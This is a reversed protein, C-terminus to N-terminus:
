EIGLFKLAKRSDVPRPKQHMFLPMLRREEEIDYDSEEEYLDLNSVSLGDDTVSRKHFARQSPRVRLSRRATQMSEPLSPTPSPPGNTPVPSSAFFTSLGVIGTPFRIPHRTQRSASLGRRPPSREQKAKEAKKTQNSPSKHSSDHLRWIVTAFDAVAESSAKVSILYNAKSTADDSYAALSSHISAISKSDDLNSPDVLDLQKFPSNDGDITNVIQAVKFFDLGALKQLALVTPLHQPAHELILYRIDSHVSLYRELQPLILIALLVPNRFPDDLTHPSHPQPKFAQITNAM